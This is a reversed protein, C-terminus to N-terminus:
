SLCRRGSSLPYAHFLASLPVVLINDVIPVEVRFGHGLGCRQAPSASSRGSLSKSALTETFDVTGRREVLSAPGHMGGHTWFAPGVAWSAIHWFAVEAVAASIGYSRHGAM